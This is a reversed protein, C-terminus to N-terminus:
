TKQGQLVKGERPLSLWSDYTALQVGAAVSTLPILSTSNRRVAGGLILGLRETIATRAIEVCLANAFSTTEIETTSSAMGSIISLEFFSFSANAEPIAFCPTQLCTKTPRAPLTPAPSQIRIGRLHPAAPSASRPSHIPHHDFPDSYM